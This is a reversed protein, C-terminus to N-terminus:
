HQPTAVARATLYDAVAAITAARFLVRIPLDVGLEARIRRILRIAQLSGAGLEFFDDDLEIRDRKLVEAFLGALRHERDTRPAPRASAAPQASAARRPEPLRALDLKGNAGLPLRDLVVFTAPIMFAPLRDAVFRRLKRVDLDAAPGGGAGHDSDAGDDSDAVPGAGAGHDSDAGPAPDVGPAPDAGPAPDSGPAPDAGPNAPVIYAVLRHGGSGPSPRLMTVAHAIGPHTVLAAEIEAPEIRFGRLKLQTDGRGLHELQGDPNWRALDGTRYMRQGPPGFPDAVFREATLGPRAHYGRGVAGAVYLEGVVGPPVPALGPGLVYTRMNGLPTGIPVGGAGDWGAPVTFTTAYFSETQGYANVVTAAPMAQRVRQVLGAPLSEGAFVVTDVDIRGATQDLVEAFLSPVTHLVTGTWGGREGLVLVDRVVEVTAGTSLAAFVEFVSVDFNISTGALVRSGPRLGMVTALRSVGNVINAHSIAVGKPTGTSGSTYMLYALNAPRLVTGAPGTGADEAGGRGPGGRGRGGRGPGDRGPGDSGPGDSGPGDRGPGDLDLLDLLCCPVSHAPLAPVSGSDTLILDPGADSLLYGLRQSPYRLDIPLYGAGSKLVGLLAVVLDATRPLALGIVSEPRAGARVLERALRDARADLERYTLSRGASLVAVADPTAAVQRGVLAPITVDPVPAPTGALEVLLRHREAPALVDVGGVRVQPDSAVQRLVRILRAALAQVTTRDFLDTAYGIEGSVAGGGAGGAGDPVETFTVSLDLKATGTRAQEVTVTLGPLERRSPPATQWGLQVQFLPHYAMSRDPAIAEVLHEFPVDRNAAAALTKDRVQELVRAFPPNGALDLRLVWTGAFPGVAGAVAADARGDVPSGIPVDAGSGSQHLLVALAAQLVIPVTVGRDAALRRVAAVLDPALGFGVTGGRHSPEPPRPRDVTLPLPAPLGALEARWYGTQGALVSAPDSRDGLSEQHRAAYDAYQAPVGGWCPPVSRARAAYATLLEATLLALSAADVAIQHFVLVLLHEEPACRLLCARVPIEAALDFRHSAAALVAAPLDAAPVALVPVPLRAAPGTRRDPEGADDEVFVSRLVDHRALVDRLAQTLATPDLVGVMRLALPVNYTAAPDGLQQLFWSRRQGSSLATV